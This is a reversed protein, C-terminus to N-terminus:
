VTCIPWRYEISVGTQTAWGQRQFEQLLRGVNAPPPVRLRGSLRAEDTFPRVTAGAMVDAAVTIAAMSAPSAQSRVHSLSYSLGRGAAIIVDM